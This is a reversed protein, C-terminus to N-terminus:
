RPGLHRHDGFVPLDLEVLLLSSEIQAASDLETTMVMTRLDPNIPCADSTVRGGM